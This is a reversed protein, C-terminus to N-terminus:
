DLYTSGLGFFLIKSLVYFKLMKYSIWSHVLIVLTKDSNWVNQFIVLMRSSKLCKGVSRANELMEVMKVLIELEKLIDCSEREDCVMWIEQFVRETGENWQNEQLEM